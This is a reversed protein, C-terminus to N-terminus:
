NQADENAKRQTEALRDLEDGVAEAEAIAALHLDHEAPAPPPETSSTPEARRAAPPRAPKAKYLPSKNGSKAERVPQVRKVPTQDEGDNSGTAERTNSVTKPVKTSTESPGAASLRRKEAEKRAETSGADTITAIPTHENIAPLTSSTPNFGTATTTDTTVHDRLTTISKDRNITNRHFQLFPEVLANTASATPPAMTNHSLLTNATTTARAASMGTSTGPGTGATSPTTKGPIAGKEKNGTAVDTSATTETPPRTLAAPTGQTADTNDGRGTTTGSTDPRVSSVDDSPSAERRRSEGESDAEEGDHYDDMEGDASLLRAIRPQAPGPHYATRPPRYGHPLPVFERRGLMSAQKLYSEPVEPRMSAPQSEWAEWLPPQPGTTGIRVQGGHSNPESATGRDSIEIEWGEAQDTGDGETRGSPDIEGDEPRTEEGDTGATPGEEGAPPGTEERNNNIPPAVPPPGTMEVDLNRMWALSEGQEGTSPPQPHGSMDVDAPINVQEGEGLRSVARNIRPGLAEQNGGSAPMEEDTWYNPLAPGNNRPGNNRPGGGGRRNDYGGRRPGRQNPDPPPLEMVPDPLGQFCVPIRCGNALLAERRGQYAAWEARVMEMTIRQAGAPVNINLMEPVTGMQIMHNLAWPRRWNVPRGDYRLGHTLYHGDFVLLQNIAVEGWWRREDHWFDLLMDMTIRLNHFETEGVPPRGMLIWIMFSANFPVMSDQAQLAINETWHVALEQSNTNYFHQREDYHQPGQPAILNARAMSNSSPFLEWGTQGPRARRARVHHDRIEGQQAYLSAVTAVDDEVARIHMDPHEARYRAAIRAWVDVSRGVTGGNRPPPM